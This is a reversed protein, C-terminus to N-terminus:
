PLRGLRQRMWDALTTLAEQCQPFRGVTAPNVCFNHHMDATYNHTVVSQQLPAPMIFLNPFGQTTMGHLSIIGDQWKEQM